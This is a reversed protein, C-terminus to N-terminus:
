AGAPAPNPNGGGGRLEAVLKKIADRRVRIDRYGFQQAAISAAIKEAEEATAINRSAEARVQLATLLHYRLELAHEPSLERSELARRFTEIAEDVYEIKLFAQGLYTLALLRNKPDSQAEQLMGIAGDMDGISFLRKGLEFKRVLDSPYAEVRLKFENVELKNLDEVHQDYMRRVMDDDKAGDLMEKLESIKRREQRIRIDGALERFRFQKFDTAAKMYLSHALEEDAPKARELLLKCYKELSPLDGPRAEMDQKAAAVLRTITEDTKVIRDAEELMRQKDSDRINQRFSGAEGSREYGGRNMTAQAALSRITAALGGDAPDVKLAQEAAAVAKDFSGVKQFAEVLKVLLDKRVKKDRLVSGFAREGMWLTPENLQLKAAYETARVALGPDLPKLAWELMAALYKDVDTRGSVSKMVEKGIGKKSAPSDLFKPVTAFFGEVGPMSNPHFRLGSLWLQIAYEYNTADVMSRAHAFFREAKEASFELGGDSGKGSEDSKKGFIAM